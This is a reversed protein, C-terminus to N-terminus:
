EAVDGGAQDPQFVAPGRQPGLPREVISRGPSDVVSLGGHRDHHLAQHRGLRRAHCEGDVGHGAAGVPHDDFGAETQALSEHRSPDRRIAQHERRVTKQQQLLRSERFVM